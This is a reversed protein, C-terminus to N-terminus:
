RESPLEVFISHALEQVRARYVNEEGVKVELTQFVDMSGKM